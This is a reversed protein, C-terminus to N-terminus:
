TLQTSARSSFHPSQAKPGPLAAPRMLGEATDFSLESYHLAGCLYLWLANLMASATLLNTFLIQPVKAVMETCSVDTPLRDMPEQIEPHYRTLPATVDVSDHRLYVQCNGYTGRLVQGSGDPGVGDNGGSILAVSELRTCHDNVLKRTAHNDVCLLVIDEAQILRELNHPTVFEQIAVLTLQSEGFRPLLDARTVAAKNGHGSFFMRSANGPEFKDGDILVLRVRSQLSALFMAGYRAVIGGVGGLGIIKMSTEEPLEPVLPQDRRLPTSSM